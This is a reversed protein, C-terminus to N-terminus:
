AKWSTRRRMATAWKIVHICDDPANLDFIDALNLATMGQVDAFSFTDGAIFARGDAMEENLWKWKEPMVRRQSEAFAPIQELTDAFLPIQHRVMLGITLFIENYIRQSWMEIRAQELADRGMLPTEPFALDLYRCIAMSETIVQGDDLELVPVQGLSNLKLFEPTRTDRGLDLEVRPIDICKEAIFIRVRKTNGSIANYLKM